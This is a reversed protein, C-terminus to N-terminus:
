FQSLLNDCEEDAAQDRLFLHFIFDKESAFTYFVNAGPRVSKEVLRCKLIIQTSYTIFGFVSSSVMRARQLLQVRTAMTTSANSRVM